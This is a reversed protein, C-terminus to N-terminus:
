GIHAAELNDHVDFMGTKEELRIRFVIGRINSLDDPVFPYQAGLETKLAKSNIFPFEHGLLIRLGKVREEESVLEEFEGWAIVSKWTSLGEQVDTEFCIKPNERMIKLKMGEHTLCFIYGNDYVYNIPVVYTKNNSHCGIRGIFQRGLLEEIEIENLKGFM